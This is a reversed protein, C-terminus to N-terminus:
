QEFESQPRAEQIWGMMLRRGNGDSFCYPAYFPADVLTGNTEVIFHTNWCIGVFYDVRKMPMVAALLVWKDGMPFFAPCEYIDTHQVDSVILPSVYEWHLLDQSQYLLGAEGGNMVGAGIVMKWTGSERFIY